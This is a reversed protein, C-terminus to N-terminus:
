WVIIKNYAERIKFDYLGFGKSKELSFTYSQEKDKNFIKKMTITYRHGWDTIDYTFMTTQKSLAKLLAEIKHREENM